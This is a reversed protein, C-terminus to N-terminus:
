HTLWHPDRSSIWEGSLRPGTRSVHLFTQNAERSSGTGKLRLIRTPELLGDTPRECWELGLQAWDGFPPLPHLIHHHALLGRGSGSERGRSCGGRGWTGSANLILLIRRCWLLGAGGCRAEVFDLSAENGFLFLFCHVSSNLSVVRVDLEDRTTLWIEHLENNRMQGSGPGNAIVGVQSNVTAEVWHVILMNSCVIHIYIMYGRSNLGNWSPKELDLTFDCVTLQTSDHRVASRRFELYRAYIIFIRQIWGQANNLIQMTWNMTATAMPWWSYM